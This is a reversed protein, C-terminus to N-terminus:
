FTPWWPLHRFLSVYALIHAALIALMLGWFQLSKRLRWYMKILLAYLFFTFLIFMAWKRSIWYREPVYILWLAMCLVVFLGIVIYWFLDSFHAKVKM